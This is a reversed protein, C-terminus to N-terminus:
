YHKYAFSQIKRGSIQSMRNINLPIASTPIIQELKLHFPSSDSSIPNPRQYGPSQSGLRLKESSPHSTSATMLESNQHRMENKIQELKLLPSETYKSDEENNKAVLGSFSHKLFRQNNGIIIHGKFSRSGPRKLDTYHSMRLPSLSDSNSGSMSNGLDSGRLLGSNQINLSEGLEAKGSIDPRRIDLYLSDKKIFRNRDSVLPTLKERSSSSSIRKLPSM